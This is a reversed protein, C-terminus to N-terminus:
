AVKKAGNPKARLGLWKEIRGALLAINEEIPGVELVPLTSGGAMGRHQMTGAALMEIRGDLEPMVVAIVQNIPITGQASGAYQDDMTDFLIVPNFQPVNAKKYLSLTRANNGGFPGGNIQFYQLNVVASVLAIGDRFFFKEQADINYLVESFVPIINFGSLHEMFTKLVPLTQEFYIGGYYFIGVTQRTPDPVQAAHYEEITAFYQDVRPDYIGFPPLKQPEPVQLGGHGLYERLLLRLMNELNERVGAHGFVWYDMLLGWNRAHKLMGVPLYKGATKMAQGIRIGKKVLDTIDPIGDMGMGGAKKSPISRALFSGLKTLRRIEENGGVLSVINRAKFLDPEEREMTAYTEVIIESALDNGRIDVLLVDADHIASTFDLRTVNGSNVDNVFYITLEFVDGLQEQVSSAADILNRTCVMTSVIVISPRQSTESGPKM